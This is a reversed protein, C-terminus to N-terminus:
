PGELLSLLLSQGGGHRERRPIGGHSESESQDSGNPELGCELPVPLMGSSSENSDGTYPQSGALSTGDAAM